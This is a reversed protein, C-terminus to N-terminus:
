VTEELHQEGQTWEGAGVFNEEWHQEDLTWAEPGVQTEKLHREVLTWEGTAVQTWEGAGEFKEKLHHEDLTWEETAGANM